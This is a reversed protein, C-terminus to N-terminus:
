LQNPLCLRIKGAKTILDKAKDKWNESKKMYNSLESLIAIIPQGYFDSEWANISIVNYKEKHEDEIFHKFMELFTTKGNGFEANLSITWAGQEGISSATGKEMNQLLNEAFSKLNLKDFDKFTVRDQNGKHKRTETLHGNEHSHRISTSNKSSSPMNKENMILCDGM